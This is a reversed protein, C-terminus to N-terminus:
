RDTKPEHRNALDLWSRAIDEYSKRVGADKAAQASRTAEEARRRYYTGREEQYDMAPRASCVRSIRAERIITLAM